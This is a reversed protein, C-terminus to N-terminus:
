KPLSAEKVSAFSYGEKALETILGDLMTDARNEGERETGLHMLIVGGNLGEPQTQAQKLLKALMQEPSRFLPNREDSVWDLTDMRPSWYVHRYGSEAAWKLIQGNYEGFPARWFPDMQHGTAASFLEAARALQGAIFEKTVGPLTAQRGDFSFSTLHPHTATHNGVAHGEAVIRRAMEPYRQIYEGTLFMTAHINHAKLTDLIAATANDDSGGDFTLLVERKSTDARVINLAPAEPLPEAPPPFSALPAVAPGKLSVVVAKSFSSNGRSDFFRAQLINQREGLSIGEFRFHGEPVLAVAEPRGNVYLGVMAERPASGEVVITGTPLSAGSSPSTIAVPGESGWDMKERDLGAGKKKPSAAKDEYVPPSYLFRDFNASLWVAGVGAAMLGLLLAGRVWWGQIATRNLRM